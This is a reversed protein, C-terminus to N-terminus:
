DEEDILYDVDIERVKVNKNLEQKNYWKKVFDVNDKINEEGCKLEYYKPENGEIDLLLIECDLDKNLKLNNILKNQKKENKENERKMREIGFPDERLSERRRGGKKEKPKNKLVSPKFDMSFSQIVDRLSKALEYFNKRTTENVPKYRGESEEQPKNVLLLLNKRKKIYYVGNRDIFYMLVRHNYKEIFKKISEVSWKKETENVQKEDFYKFLSLQGETANLKKILKEDKINVFTMRSYEKMVAVSKLSEISELNNGFYTVFHENSIDKILKDYHYKDNIVQIPKLIQKRLFILFDDVTYRDPVQAFKEGNKLLNVSPYGMVNFKEMYERNYYGSLTGIGVLDKLEPEHEQIENYLVPFGPIIKYQCTGCIESTAALLLYPYEKNAEKYTDDSLQLVNKIKPFDVGPTLSFFLPLFSLLLIIITKQSSM